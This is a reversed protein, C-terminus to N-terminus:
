ALTALKRIAPARRRRKYAKRQRPVTEGNEFCGGLQSLRTQMRIFGAHTICLFEAADCHPGTAFIAEIVPLTAFDERSVFHTFEVIRQRDQWQKELREAANRLHESHTHCYEDNVASWDEGDVHGSM